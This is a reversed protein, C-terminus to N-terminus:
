DKKRRKTHRDNDPPYRGHRLYYLRLACDELFLAIRRGPINYILIKGWFRKEPAAKNNTKIQTKVRIPLKGKRYNWATIGFKYVKEGCYYIVYLVNPRKDNRNNGHM